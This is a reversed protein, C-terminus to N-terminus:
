PVGMPGKQASDRAYGHKVVGLIWIGELEVGRVSQLRCVCVCVADEVESLGSGGCTAHKFDICM